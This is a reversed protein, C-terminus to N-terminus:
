PLVWKAANKITDTPNFFKLCGEHLFIISDEKDTGLFVSNVYGNNPAIMMIEDFKSLELAEIKQYQTLKTYETGGILRISVKDLGHYHIAKPKKYESLVTIFTSLLGISKGVFIVHKNENNLFTNIISWIGTEVLKNRYWIIDSTDHIMLTQYELAGIKSIATNEDSLVVTTSLGTIYGPIVSNIKDKMRRDVVHLLSRTIPIEKPITGYYHYM